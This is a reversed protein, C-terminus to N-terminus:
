NCKAVLGVVPGLCRGVTKRWPTGPAKPGTLGPRDPNTVEKEPNTVENNGRKKPFAARIRNFNFARSANNGLNGRKRM